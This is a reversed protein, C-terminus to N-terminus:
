LKGCWRGESNLWMPIFTARRGHEIVACGLSVTVPMHKAYEYAYAAPDILCGANVAFLNGEHSVAAYSHIHGHVVSQKYGRMFALHSNQGSKGEGHIYRVNDVVHSHAWVWGDPAQLMVSYSPMLAQPLGGEFMKKLPRVTHNSTCVLVDPFEHFFPLLHERAAALEQGPSMGDPNPTFRSISHFDVEDGLCVIIEPKYKAKVAQLFILTDPHCFPHHMDPIALVVSTTTRQDRKSREPTLGLLGGQHPSPRDIVSKSDAMKEPPADITGIIENMLEEHCHLYKERNNKWQAITGVQIGYKRSVAYCSVGSDVAEIVRRRFEIPYPNRRM